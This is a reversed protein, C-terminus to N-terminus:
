CDCSDIVFYIVSKVQSCYSKAVLAFVCVCVYVYATLWIQSIGNRNGWKGRKKRKAMRKTKPSRQTGSVAAGIQWCKNGTERGREREWEKGQQKWARLWLRSHRSIHMSEVKWASFQSEDRREDRRRSVNKPLHKPKEPKRNEPKGAEFELNIVNILQVNWLVYLM